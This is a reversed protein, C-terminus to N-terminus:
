RNEAHALTPGTMSANGQMGQQNPYQNNNNQQRGFEFPAFGPYYWNYPMVGGTFGQASVRGNPDMSVTYSVYADGALARNLEALARYKQFFNSNPNNAMQSQWQANAQAQQQEFNNARDADYKYQERLSDPLDRFKLKAVGFGFPQPAYSVLLGDPDVRQLTVNQYTRGDTTTIQQPASTNDQAAAIWCLMLGAGLIASTRINM